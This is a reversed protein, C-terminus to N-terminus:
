RQDLLASKVVANKRRALATALHEPTLDDLADPGIKKAALFGPVDLTLGVRGFKRPDVFGIRLGGDLVIEIRVFRPRDHDDRYAAVDGTMGFHLTFAGGAPEDLLLFLNKGIRQSSTFRRGVLAARLAAEPVTLVHADLVRVAVIPVYLALEDLFRRYTEVEPLEPM